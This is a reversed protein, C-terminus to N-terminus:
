TPKNRSADTLRNTLLAAGIGFPLALGGMLIGAFVVYPFEALLGVEVARQRVSEAITLVVAFLVAGAVAAVITTTGGVFSYRVIRKWSFQGRLYPEAVAGFLAAPFVTSPVVSVVFPVEIKFGATTSMWLIIYLLAAGSFCIAGIWWKKSIM